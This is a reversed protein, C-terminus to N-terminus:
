CDIQWGLEELTGLRQFRPHALYREPEEPPFATEMLGDPGLMVLWLVGEVEAVVTPYLTTGWRYAFVTATPTRVVRLILATYDAMTPAHPLHGPALRKALHQADRGPRWRVGERLRRIAAAIRQQEEEM